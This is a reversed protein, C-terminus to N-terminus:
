SRRRKKGGGDGGKTRRGTLGSRRKKGSAWERAAAVSAPGPQHEILRFSIRGGLRDIEELEVTVRDGLAYVEGSFRGVLAHRAEDLMWDDRGISGVHILGEAGSDLLSVFLGFKQVSSVMAEFRAGVQDQMFLAVFREYATREAVMARRETSSLHSGLEYLAEGEEGKPLGGDGLKLQSILARHVFLDSYRRIPSTFHAYSRLNLGFHGINDPHYVAQAQSRLVLQSVIQRSADDEIRSVLRTFDGPKAVNKGWPLGLERMYDALAALKLADPKDHVRYLCPAKRKELESAAAVNAAIMFEEILQHSKLRERPRFGAPKGEESFLVKREPVDLDMAGREDRAARLLEYAQFLRRVPELVETPVTDSQGQEVGEVASYTLRARSKMVARHFKWHRLHGKADISIVCALCAREEHPRLSCLDNSLKEPLMPIVRDPFYVSNGRNKAERDLADDPRVYHAVDAIAVTLLYGGPNKPDPDVVAHVADDFDRADEGDITVLPVDRLDTRGELGVPQAQEALDLAQAPFVMPLDAEIATMLSISRPDDPSGLNEVAEAYPIDQRWGPLVHARVLDGIAVQVKDARLRYEHKAKRDAPRLRFGDGAREVVGVVERATKPLVRVVRGEFSGDQQRFIKVLLRDGLGPVPRELAHHPLRIVLEGFIEDIPRALLDGDEDILDVTVPMIAPPRGTIAHRRPPRGELEGETRLDRLVKRLAHRQDGKVSFAQAIERVQVEGGAAQIFEM